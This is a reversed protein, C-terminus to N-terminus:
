GSRDMSIRACFRGARFPAKPKQAIGERNLLNACVPVANDGFGSQLTFFHPRCYGPTEPPPPSSERRGQYKDKGRKKLQEEAATLEEKLMEIHEKLDNM